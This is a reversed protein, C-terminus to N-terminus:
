GGRGLLAAGGLNLWAAVVAGHLLVGPWLSGTRQYLVTVTTGLLAAAALFAPAGFVVRAAPRALDAALPHAAVYILLSAAWWAARRRLTPGATAPHPQLLGRFLGEELLAPTLFPLVATRVSVPGFPPSLLGGAMALPTAAATFLLAWVASETWGRADPLTTLALRLERLRGCLGAEGTRMM